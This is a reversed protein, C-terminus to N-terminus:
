KDHQKRGQIASFPIVTAGQADKQQGVEPLRAGMAHGYVVEYSLPLGSPQRLEEYAAVVQKFRQKGVLGRPRGATVNHAGINKLAAMVSKVDPYHLTMWDVDMVPDVLGSGLLADGLDHMDVFRNVHSFEDATAWSHRVEKLTDPGFTSFLLVGEPKLVRAFEQFVAPFDNCWQLMLNSVILDVSRDAFPLRAADACVFHQRRRHFLWFKNPAKQRAQQVMPLAIDAAYLTAEPYRTALKQTLRGVGCGLDLISRPQFKIMDLRDLLFDGVQHQLQAHQEYQSAMRSFAQAVAHPDLYEPPHQSM